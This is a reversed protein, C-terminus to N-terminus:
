YGERSECKAEKESTTSASGLDVKEILTFNICRKLSEDYLRTSTFDIDHGVIM